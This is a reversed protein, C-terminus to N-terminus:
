GYDFESQQQEEPKSYEDKPARKGLSFKMFSLITNM